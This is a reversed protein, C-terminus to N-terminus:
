KKGKMPVTITDGALSSQDRAFIVVPSDARVADSLFLPAKGILNKWKGIESKKEGLSYYYLDM